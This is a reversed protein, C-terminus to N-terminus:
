LGCDLFSQRFAQRADQALHELLYRRARCLREVRADGRELARRVDLHGIAVREDPCSIAPRAGPEVRAPETGCRFEIAPDDLNQELPAYTEVPAQDLLVSQIQVWGAADTGRQVESFEGVWSADPRSPLHCRACDSTAQLRAVARDASGSLTARLLAALGQLAAREETKRGRRWEYGALSADPGGREPRLVGFWQERSEGLRTQRADAVVWREAEGITARNEEEVRVAVTGAPYDLLPTLGTEARVTRLNSGHPLKLWVSTRSRGGSRGPLRLPPVM